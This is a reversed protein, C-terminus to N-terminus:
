RVFKKPINWGEETIPYVTKTYWKGKFFAGNPYRWAVPHYDMKIVDWGEWFLGKTSKVISEM